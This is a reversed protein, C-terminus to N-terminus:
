SVEVSKGTRYCFKKPNNMMTWQRTKTGGGGQKPSHALCQDIECKELLSYFVGLPLLTHTSNPSVTTSAAVKKKAHSQHLKLKLVLLRQKKRRRRRLFDVDKIDKVGPSTFHLSEFLTYRPLINSLLSLSCCLSM